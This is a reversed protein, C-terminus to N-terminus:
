GELIAACERCLQKDGSETALAIGRRVDGLRLSMRAIGGTIARRVGAAAEDGTDVCRDAAANYMALAAGADGKFELQKACELSISPVQAPALTEALKLAAEWQLLDRRMDLAAAPASPSALFLDQALAYDGFLLAMHGSLATRDEVRGLATLAAVMGADGLRQYVRAAIDVNLVEMAKGSLALWCARDDLSCAIDWAPLLRQLAVNQAFAARLRDATVRGSRNLADHTALPLTALAGGQTYAVLSGDTVSMPVHGPPLPTSLADVVMDGNPQIDLAGLQTVGAGTMSVQTYLYTAVERPSAAVLTTRDAIDWLIRDTGEPLDPLALLKGDVPNFLFGAFPRRLAAGPPAPLLPPMFM